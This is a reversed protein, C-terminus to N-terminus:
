RSNFSGLIDLEFHHNLQDHVFGMSLSHIQHINIKIISALQFRSFVISHHSTDKTLSGRKNISANSSTRPQTNRVPRSVSPAPVGSSSRPLDVSFCGLEDFIIKPNSGPKTRSDSDSGLVDKPKLKVNMERQKEAITKHGSISEDPLLALPERTNAPISKSRQTPTRTSASPPLYAYTWKLTVDMTGNNEGQDNRLDFTGRIPNDHALPILPIDARAVYRDAKQDRDDFVFITLQSQKLYRDLDADMQVPYQARDDFNPNNSSPITISDHDTFDYFKYICYM